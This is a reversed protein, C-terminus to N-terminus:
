RSSQQLKEFIGRLEGPEFTGGQYENVHKTFEELSLTKRGAHILYQWTHEAKAEKDKVADEFYRGM